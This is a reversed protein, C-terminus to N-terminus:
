PRFVHISSVCDNLGEECSGQVDKLNPIDGTVELHSGRFDNDGYLTARWGPALRVSSICNDWSDRTNTVMRGDPLTLTETKSCPGDFRELDRIDATVHASKGGYNDDQYVILGEALESPGTPLSKQCNSTLLASAVVFILGRRMPHAPLM